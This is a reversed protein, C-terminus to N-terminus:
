QVVENETLALTSFHKVADQYNPWITRRQVVKMVWEASLLLEKLEAFQGAKELVRSM